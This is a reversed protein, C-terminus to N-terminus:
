ASVFAEARQRRCQGDFGALEPARRRRDPGMFNGVRVFPRPKEVIAAIRTYLATASVPKALVENVGHDIADRIRFFETYATLLIIPVFRNKSDEAKRIMDVMELGDLVDMRWDTIVLDANFTQLVKLGQAGDYATEIQRIGFARLVDCVLSNMHRDDEVVLVAIDSLDLQKRNTGAYASSFSGM